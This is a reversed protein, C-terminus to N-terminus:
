ILFNVLQREAGGAGLSGINHITNPFEARKQAETAYVPRSLLEIMKPSITEGDVERPVGPLAKEAEFNPAAMVQVVSSQPFIDFAAEWYREYKM